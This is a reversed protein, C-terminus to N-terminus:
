GKCHNIHQDSDVAQGCCDCSEAVVGKVRRFDPVLRQYVEATSKAASKVLREWVGLAGGQIM